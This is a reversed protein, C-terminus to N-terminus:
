KVPVSVLKPNPNSTSPGNPVKGVAGTSFGARSQDKRITGSSLPLKDDRITGTSLGKTKDNRITGNSLDAKSQGKRISSTSLIMSEVEQAETAEEPSTPPPCPTGGKVPPVFTELHEMLGDFYGPSEMAIIDSPFCAYIIKQYASIDPRSSELSIFKALCKSQLFSRRAEVDCPLIKSFTKLLTPLLQDSADNLFIQELEKYDQCKPILLDLTRYCTDQMDAGVTPDTATQFLTMLVHEECLVATNSASQKGIQGLTWAAALQLSECGPSMNDQKGELILRLMHVGDMSVISDAVPESHASMYGLSMIAPLTTHGVPSFIIKLFAMTGGASNVQNTLRLSQKCINQLLIAAHKKVAPDPFDLNEIAVPIVDTSIRAALNASQQAIEALCLFAAAKMEPNDGHIVRICENIVNYDAVEEALTVDQRAINALAFAAAQKLELNPSLFMNNLERVGELQVFSHALNKNRNAINGLAMATNIQVHPDINNLDAVINGLESFCSQSVYM